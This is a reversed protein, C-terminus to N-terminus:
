YRVRGSEAASWSELPVGGGREAAASVRWSSRIPSDSNGAGLLGPRGDRHGLRWCM